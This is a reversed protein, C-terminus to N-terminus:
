FSYRLRLFAMNFSEKKNNFEGNFSQVFMSFDANDSLSYTFSPGIFSGDIKPYYMVAFGINMIPTIPYNGSAFVSLKTFSLNRVSLSANYYDTFDNIVVPNDIYLVEFQLSASNDFYYDFAISGLFCGELSDVSPLVQTFEGRFGMNKIFGSWGLGIAYENENLRGFLAQFDYNKINFRYLGAIAIEKSSDSKVVLEASSASGTYYQLRIADSGPKEEYDFDFYSYSNFIDNPNWVFTQGWNIRQRGITINLKDFTLDICARDITSNLFFSKKKILNDTLDVVGNDKAFIDPYSPNLKQNDGTIFRNRVELNFTLFDTAYYNFNFRNHIINETIWDKEIDQFVFSQLNSVYGNLQVKKDQAYISVPLFILFLIIIYRM